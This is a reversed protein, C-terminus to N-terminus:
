QIHFRFYPVFSGIQLISVSECVYLVSRHNGLLPYPLSLFIRPTQLQYICVIVYRISSCCPGLTYCLSSYKIDQSLGYHFLIYFFLTYIHIVSDSQQVASVPMINYIFQIEICFQIKFFSDTTGTYDFTTEGMQKQM